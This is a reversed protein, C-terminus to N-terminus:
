CSLMYCVYALLCLWCQHSGDASFCVVHEYCYLSLCCVTWGSHLTASVQYFDLYGDAQGGAAQLAANTYRNGSMGSVASSLVRYSWSGTTILTNPDARRIAAAQRNIARQIVNFAVKTGTWGYEVSAGEPENSAACYCVTVHM